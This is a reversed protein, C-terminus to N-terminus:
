RGRPSPTTTPSTLTDSNTNTNSNTNGNSNTTTNANTNGNTNTRRTTNGNTTNSNMNMNSNMDTANGNSNMNMNTTNGAANTNGGANTGGANANATPGANSGSCSFTGSLVDVGANQISIVSAGEVQVTPTDVKLQGNGNKPLGITGVSTGNILVDLTTGIPLGTSRIDVQLREKGTSRYRATGRPANNGKAATPAGGTTATSVRQTLTATLTSCQTQAQRENAPALFLGAAPVTAWAFVAILSMLLKSYNNPRSAKM